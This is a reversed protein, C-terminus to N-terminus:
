EGIILDSTTKGTCQLPSYYKHSESTVLVITANTWLSYHNSKKLILLRSNCEQTWTLVTWQWQQALSWGLIVNGERWVWDQSAMLTLNSLQRETGDAAQLSTPRTHRINSSGSTRIAKKIRITLLIILPGEGFALFLATKTHLEKHQSWRTCFLGTAKRISM